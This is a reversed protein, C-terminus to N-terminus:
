LGAQAPEAGAQTPMYSLTKLGRYPSVGDFGMEIQDRSTPTAGGTCGRFGKWQNSM